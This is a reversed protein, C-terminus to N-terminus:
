ARTVHGAVMFCFILMASVTMRAPIAYLESVTGYKMGALFFISLFIMASWLVIHSIGLHVGLM